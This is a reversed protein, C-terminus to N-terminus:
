EIGYTSTEEVAITLKRKVMQRSTYPPLDLRNFCTHARPLSTIEGWKEISFRKPGNYGRLAAFGEHPLSSTGTVFQLLRLRMENTFEDVVSWFWGIVVHHDHYGARYDTNRRWDGVDVETTGSIVFELEHADFKSLLRFDLVEHFGKVLCNTQEEVGRLMRWKVMRDVYDKRNKHGVSIRSGNPKLEVQTIKGAVEEDVSFNLGLQQFDVGEGRRIWELSRFFEYDVSELDSMTICEKLLAKYFPRVFFVDLLYQHLVALGVIRGAFRFWKCYDEMFISMPSIQLTYANSSSYEFLGYCPNFLERSILFFFEKSPGGYDLGEEGAFSILLKSRHLERKTMELIKKFSDELIRDRNIELKVKWLGSAYGRSELKKYFETLKTQFNHKSPSSPQESLSHVFSTRVFSKSKPFSSVKSETSSIEAEFQSLLLNLEVDDSFRHLAEIGRSAVEEVKTVLSENSALEPCRQVLLDNINTQRLFCVVKELDSMDEVENGEPSTARTISRSMSLSRPHHGKSDVDEVSRGLLGEQSNPTSTPLRPDVFTTNRAIHDVFFPRSSKDFRMEWGTPLRRSEDSFANLFCVLDRNHQYRNFNDADWRIKNIMHKLQPSKNYKLLAEQNKRLLSYFDPRILFVVGPPHVHKTEVSSAPSLAASPSLDSVDDRVIDGENSNYRSCCRCPQPGTWSTTKDVHNVYFVRGHKDNRAEWGVIIVVIVLYDRVM